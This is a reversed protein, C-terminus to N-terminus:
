RGAPAAYAQGLALGGDGPPVARNLYVAFDRERLQTVVLRRLLANQFVGGSLAVAGHGTAERMRTAGAVAAAAVTAHVLYALRPIPGRDRETLLHRLLPRPDWTFPAAQTLTALAEVVDRSPQPDWAAHELKMPGEAEYSAGRVLGLIAAAADFVRGASTTCPAHVEAEVMHRLLRYEREDVDLARRLRAENVTGGLLSVATRYPNVVAREGGPLHFPSFSGLREFGDRRALLFEGGWITGDTGYGTGDFAIGLCESLRHEAMVSLIHAHHHQVGCKTPYDQDLAWQTSYYGPHLDHVVVQPKAAYLAIIRRIHEDFDRRCAPDALDGVYPLLSVVGGIRLAPAAKLDGGVALAAPEDATGTDVTRPVYGRSRRLLFGGTGQEARAISDDTRRVIRRNHYLVLDAISGLRSFAETPDTVIPENSVNGSTMVLLEYRPQVDPCRLLLLHLPTYPLMVGLSGTGSVAALRRRQERRLPLIVIPSEPSRLLAEDEPAIRCLLRVVDLDRPMVAFPKADRGKRARLRAVAATNEADCALHFGGIGQVAVIAGDGLASVTRALAEGAVPEGSSDALFLRPGCDPCSNTQSHFRRDAPNGYEAECAECQPFEQMATSERDFPTEDVISYRPGCQTCTIFPYRYRRDHPDFLERACEGCIALDPPIPPFRFDTVESEAIRFGRDGCLPVAAEVASEVRAAAPLTRRLEPLFRAVRDAPGEVEAVVHSRENRVFGALGLSVAARFVTPRFGVGQITGRFTYRRRVLGGNREM